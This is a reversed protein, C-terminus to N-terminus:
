VNNYEVHLLKVVVATLLTAINLWVAATCNTLQLCNIIYMAAEINLGNDLNEFKCKRYVFSSGVVCITVHKRVSWV